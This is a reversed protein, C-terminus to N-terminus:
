RSELLGARLRELGKSLTAGSSFSVRLTGEGQSGYASGHIVVVGHKELLRRRTIDSPEGLERTDVMVFFGGEPALPKVGPIGELEHLVLSRRRAYEVQM